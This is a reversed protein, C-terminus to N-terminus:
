EGFNYRRKILPTSQQDRRDQAQQMNLMFSKDVNNGGSMITHPQMNGYAPPTSFGGTPNRSGISSDINNRIPEPHSYQPQYSGGLGPVRMGLLSQLLQQWYSISTPESFGYPSLSIGTSPVQEFKSAM